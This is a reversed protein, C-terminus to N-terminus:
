DLPKRAVVEINRKSNFGKKDEKNNVRVIEFGVDKLLGVFEDADYLYYYRQYDKGEYKWPIIVEKGSDEFREQNKDWVTAWAEAGPKLIRFLEMLSNKRNEESTICHIVATCVAADFFNDSFGTKWADAKKLKVEVGLEKAHIKALRLMEESFDVGYIIGDIKTFNRGSGCGLDLIKGKKNRLFDVAEPLSNLNKFTKWPIAISDWIKEQNEIKM